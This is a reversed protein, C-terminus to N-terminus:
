AREAFVISVASGKQISLLQAADGSNVSIELLGSSGVLMVPEGEDVDGYTRCVRDLIASGVYCKLDRGDASATLLKGPINTVANGFRDIHVIWGRVGQEDALPQVWHLQKIEDTPTGVETLTRGAALHAAVPAFLDRGHFTPSPTPTRWFAPRDLVVTAESAFLDRGDLLLSFMGNDPGVFTHGGIQTAIARRETGVGPDVVALHVTGPPFYPVAGRLVFAAGMVDQAAIGHSIDVLRCDPAVSLIAGKVAGLYADDLGFDTTLTLIPLLDRLLALPCARM